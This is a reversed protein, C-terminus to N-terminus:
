CSWRRQCSCGLYHLPWRINLPHQSRPIFYAALLRRKTNLFTPINSHQLQYRRAAPPPAYLPSRGAAYRAPATMAWQPMWDLGGLHRNSHWPTNNRMACYRYPYGGGNLQPGSADHELQGRRMGKLSGWESRLWRQVTLKPADEQRNKRRQLSDQAQEEGPGDM